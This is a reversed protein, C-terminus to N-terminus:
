DDWEMEVEEEVEMAVEEEVEMAVEEEVGGEETGDEASRFVPTRREHLLIRKKKKKM